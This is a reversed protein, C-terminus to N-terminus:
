FMPSDPEMAPAADQQPWEKDLQEREKLIRRVSRRGAAPRELYIIARDLYRDLMEILTWAFEEDTWEDYSPHDVNRNKGLTDSTSGNFAELYTAAEAIWEWEDNPLSKALVARHERWESLAFVFDFPKEPLSGRPRHPLSWVVGSLADRLLRAAARADRTEVRRYLGFQTAGAISAGIVVGVLGIVAASM